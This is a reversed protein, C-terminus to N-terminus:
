FWSKIPNLLLLGIRCRIDSKVILIEGSSHCLPHHQTSWRWFLETQFILVSPYSKGRLSQDPLSHVKPNSLVHSHHLSGLFCLASGLSNIRDNGSVHGDHDNDVPKEEIIVQYLCVFCLLSYFVLLWCKTEYQPSLSHDICLSLNKLNKTNLKLGIQKALPLKKNQGKM